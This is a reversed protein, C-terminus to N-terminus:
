NITMLIADYNNMLRYTEVFISPLMNKEIKLNPTENWFVAANTSVTKKDMWHHTKPNQSDNKCELLEKVNRKNNEHGKILFPTEHITLSISPHIIKFVKSSPHISRILLNPRPGTSYFNYWLDHFRHNRSIIYYKNKYKEEEPCPSYKQPPLLIEM